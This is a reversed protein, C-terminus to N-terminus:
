CMEDALRIMETNFYSTPLYITSRGDILDLTVICVVKKWLMAYRLTCADCDIIVTDKRQGDTTLVNMGSRGINSKVFAGKAADGDAM